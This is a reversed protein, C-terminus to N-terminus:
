APAQERRIRAAAFLFVATIALGIWLGPSLLFHLPTLHTMPNTPFTNAMATAAPAGAGLIRGGITQTLNSTDFAIKELACIAIPPLFAWLYPVRRSWASVLLFWAYVPAPWIAHVTLFHYVMLLEMRFFQVHVVLPSASSGRGMESASSLGLIAVHTLVAVASAFLPLLIIPITAKALVTTWDSVPMSKWFLISRDRREAYLAEISYFAGVIMTTLMLLGAAFDYAGMAIAHLERQPGASTAAQLAPAAHLASVLFGFLFTAGVAAPAIYVYRNEWLERRVSWYFRRTASITKSTTAAPLQAVSNM